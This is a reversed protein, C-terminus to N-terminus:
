LPHKLTTIVTKVQKALISTPLKCDTNLLAIPRYSACDTPDKHEKPIVSIIAEKWVAPLEGKELAHSYARELIPCIIDIFDKYFENTFGDSGPSKNNKMNKIAM